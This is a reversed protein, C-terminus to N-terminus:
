YLREDKKLEKIKQNNRYHWIPLILALSWGIAGTTVLAGILFDLLTEHM